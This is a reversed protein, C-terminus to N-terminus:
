HGATPYRACWIQTSLDIPRATQDIDLGDVWQGFAFGGETHEHWTLLTEGEADAIVSRGNARGLLCGCNDVWAEMAAATTEHTEIRNRPQGNSAIYYTKYM